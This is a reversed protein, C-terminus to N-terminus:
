RRVAAVARRRAARLREHLGGSQASVTLQVASAPLGARRLADRTAEVDYEVRLFDVHGADLDLVAARAALSGDRSQGVAGPNLLWQEAGGLAVRGTAGDLVRGSRRGFATARHTHGLVVCSAAPHARGLAALEGRAARDDRVYRRPDDLAGHALVVPGFTARRPLASLWRRTESTLVGSTWALTVQALQGIHEGALAGTAILDHNGAVCTAPLQAVLEVCENPQPGYGVLDGAVLYRDVGADELVALTARLAALNAHVDAVLGCRM